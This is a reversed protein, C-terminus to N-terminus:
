EKGQTVSLPTTREDRYKEEDLKRARALRLKVMEAENVQKTVKEGTKEDTVVVEKKQKRERKKQEIEELVQEKMKQPDYVLKMFISQLLMTINSVTYYLSFAVPVQFSYTVFMFSMIWPMWKMAGTMEQGSLKTMLINSLFMTLVSLVPFILLPLTEPALSLQPMQSLDIGLFHFNFSQIKELQEASFWQQAVTPDAQIKAIMANQAMYNNAIGMGQMAANIADAPVRLIHQLPKYVVDIVGFLVLMTLLMPLCGAMPSFGYEEQLRLMEEQQKQKDNAYKKNIENIMPQYAQMRASSKQQKITFPLMALRVLVTFLVIAWGYSNVVQYILDMIWGLPGGLFGLFGMEESM